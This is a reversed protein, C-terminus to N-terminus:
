PNQQYTTAGKTTDKEKYAVGRFEFYTEYGVHRYAGAAAKFANLVAVQKGQQLADQEALGMLTGAIGKRRYGPLTGVWAIEVFEDAYLAMCASVPLGQYEALYFHVYPMASLAQYHEFSFLDYEFAANLIAGTVKLDNQHEVRKLVLNQHPTEEAKTLVKAMGESSEQQEFYGTGVLYGVLDIDGEISGPAIPFNRPLRKARMDAIIAACQEEYKAADLKLFYSHRIHGSMWYVLDEHATNDPLQGLAHWYHLHGQEIYRIAQQTDM